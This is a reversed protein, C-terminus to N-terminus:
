TRDTQDDLHKILQRLEKELRRNEPTGGLEELRVIILRRIWSREYARGVDFASNESILSMLRDRPDSM